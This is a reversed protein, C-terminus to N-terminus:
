KFTIEVGYEKSMENILEREAKLNHGMRSVARGEYLWSGIYGSQDELNIGDKLLDCGFVVIPLEILAAMICIGATGHSFFPHMVRPLCAQWGCILDTVDAGGHRRIYHYQQWDLTEGEKNWFFYGKEPRQRRMRERARGVTACFFSTKKGYDEAFQWKGIHLFRTVYRFSDIHKGLGSKRLSPGHGIIAVAEIM